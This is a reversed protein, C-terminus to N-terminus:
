STHGGSADTGFLGFVNAVVKQKAAKVKSVVVVVFVLFRRSFGAPSQFQNGVARPHTEWFCSHDCTRGNDISNLVVM